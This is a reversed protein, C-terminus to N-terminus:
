LAILLSARTLANNTVTIEMYGYEFDVSKCQKNLSKGGVLFMEAIESLLYM